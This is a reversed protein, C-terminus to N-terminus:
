YKIGMCGFYGAQQGSWYLSNNKKLMITSGEAAYVHKVNKMLFVPKSNWGKKYRNTFAYGGEMNYNYGLGYAKNNKTLYVIISLFDDIRTESVAVEKINNALKRPTASYKKKLSKFTRGWGWLTNDEKVVLVHDTCAAIQKVGGDMIKVFQSYKKKKSASILKRNNRGIGWVSGDKMLVFINSGTVYNEGCIVQKIQNGKGDFFTQVTNYKYCKEDGKGVLEGMIRGTIFLKNNKVYAFMDNNGWAKKVNTEIIIDNYPHKFHYAKNCQKKSVHNVFFGCTTIGSFLVNNKKDIALNGMAQPFVNKYKKSITYIGYKGHKKETLQVESIKNKQQIYLEWFDPESGIYVKKVNKAILDYRTCWVHKEEGNDFFDVAPITKKAKAFIMSPMCQSLISVLIVFYIFGKKRM